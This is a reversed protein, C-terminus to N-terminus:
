TKRSAKYAESQYFYLSVLYLVILWFNDKLLITLVEPNVYISEAVEKIILTNESQVKNRTVARVVTKILANQQIEDFAITMSVRETLNLVYDRIVPREFIEEITKASSQLSFYSFYDKELFLRILYDLAETLEKEVILRSLEVDVSIIVIDVVQMLQDYSLEKENSDDPRKIM